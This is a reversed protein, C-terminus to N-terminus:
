LEKRYDYLRRGLRLGRYNKQIFVEIGYLMDGSSDHTGFNENDTIIDYTHHDDYKSYDVIISLACGAVEGNVIIAIQGEPFINILKKIKDESWMEDSIYKYTDVMSPRLKKFAALTLYSIEINEIEM